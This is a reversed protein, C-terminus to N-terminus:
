LAKTIDAFFRIYKRPAGTTPNTKIESVVEGDQMCAGFRVNKADIEMAPLTNGFGNGWISIFEKTGDSKVAYATNSNKEANFTIEVKTTDKSLTELNSDIYAKINAAIPMDKASAFFTYKGLVKNAERQENMDLCLEADAIQKATHSVNVASVYRFRSM